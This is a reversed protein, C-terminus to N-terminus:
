SGGTPVTSYGRVSYNLVTRRRLVAGGQLNVAGILAGGLGGEKQRKETHGPEQSAQNMVRLRQGCVVASRSSICGHVWADMPGPTRGEGNRPVYTTQVARKNLWFAVLPKWCRFRADCDGMVADTPPAM